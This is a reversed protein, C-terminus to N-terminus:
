EKRTRLWAVKDPANCGTVPHIIGNALGPGSPRSWVVMQHGAVSALGILANGANVIATITSSGLTGNVEYQDASLPVIFTTGIVRRGNRVGNTQWRARAGVGAASSAQNNAGNTAAHPAGAITSLLTGDDDDLDNIVPDVTVTVGIPLRSVFTDWFDGVADVLADAGAQDLGTTNDFNM